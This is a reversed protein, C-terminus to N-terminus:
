QYQITPQNKVRKPRTPFVQTIKTITFLLLNCVVALQNMKEKATASRLTVHPYKGGEVTQM